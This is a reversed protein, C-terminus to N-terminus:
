RRRVGRRRLPEMPPPTWDEPLGLWDRVLPDALLLRRLKRIAHQGAERIADDNAPDGTRRRWLEAVQPWTRIAYDGRGCRGCRAAGHVLRSGCECHLRESM